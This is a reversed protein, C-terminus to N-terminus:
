HNASTDAPAKRTSNIAFKGRQVKEFRSQEGRTAIERIMASYITAHPTKGDSKWYGKEFAMKVIERCAMPGKSEELVRAAADLGTPPKAETQGRKAQTARKTAKTAKSKRAAKAGRDAGTAAVPSETDTEPPPGSVSPESEATEAAGDSDDAKTQPVNVERRLQRPLKIHIKEGTTLNTADWGGNPNEGQLRVSVMKGDVKTTYVRGITVESKKM